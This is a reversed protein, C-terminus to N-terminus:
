GLREQWPELFRELAPLSGPELAFAEHIRVMFPARELFAPGPLAYVAWQAVRLDCVPFDAHFSDREGLEDQLRALADHYARVEEPTFGERYGLIALFVPLWKSAVERDLRDKWEDCVKRGARDAAWLRPADRYNADLYHLIAESDNLVIGRDEIVPTLEQGSAQVVASRDRPDVAVAEFEIGKFRLAMRVKTNNPSPALEWFKLM